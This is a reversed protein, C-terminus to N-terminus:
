QPRCASREFNDEKSYAEARDFYAMAFDPNLRIAETADAVAGYYDGMMAYARGRQRYAAAFDPASRVAWGFDAIASDPHNKELFAFGRGFLADVNEPDNALINTFARLADDFKRQGLLAFAESATRDSPIPWIWDKRSPPRNSPSVVLNNKARYKKDLDIYRVDLREAEAFAKESERVKGAKALNVGMQFNLRASEADVKATLSKDLRSAEKFYKVAADAQQDRSSVIASGLTLFADGCNANLLVARQADDIAADYKEITLNARARLRYAEYSDPSLLIAETLDDIAQHFLGKELYVAARGCYGAASNRDLFLGETFAALAKDPEGLGEYASALKFHALSDGRNVEIAQNFANIAQKWKGKALEGGELKAETLLKCGEAYEKDGPISPPTGSCGLCVALGLLCGMRIWHLSRRYCALPVM